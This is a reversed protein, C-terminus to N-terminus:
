YISNEVEIFESSSMKGDASYACVKYINKGDSSTETDNFFTKCNGQANYQLDAILEDNKFVYFGALSLKSEPEDWSITVAGNSKNAIVARVPSPEQSDPFTGEHVYHMYTKHFEDTKLFPSYYHSYAFTIINSVYPSVAEMQKVFRDLPAATWFQQDFTEADSWFELGPVLKVADAMTSFWEDVMELELGGAGVCDQPAFIDGKRFNVRPLVYKWMEANEPSNGVRYNVFPCLMFPMEPTIENLHNININLANILVDQRETTKVNLNDVEWVWYWGYMTNPYKNKYKKVLETAVQNGTEMQAFLWEPSFSATWWNEHFNLGLFVKFGAEKANRLCNEVLDSNHKKVTGPIESNYITRPINDTNSYLTPALVLYEMGVEKLMALEQQWRQDDWRAILNDQIFTGTAVPHSKQPPTNEASNCGFSIIILFILYAFAFPIRPHKKHAM